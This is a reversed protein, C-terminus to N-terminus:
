AARPFSLVRRRPVLGAEVTAEAPGGDPADAVGPGRAPRSGDPLDDGARRAPAAPADRGAPGLFAPNRNSTMALHPVVGGMTTLGPKRLTLRDAAM